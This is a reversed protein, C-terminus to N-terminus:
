TSKVGSFTNTNGVSTSEHVTKRMNGWAGTLKQRFNIVNQNTVLHTSQLSLNLGDGARQKADIKGDNRAEPPVLLDMARCLVEEDKAFADVALNNQEM